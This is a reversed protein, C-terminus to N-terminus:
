ALIVIKNNVVEVIGGNVPFQKKESGSDVVVNGKSLASIMPAHNNMIQFSGEVGPLTVIQADGSFLTADPTLIDVQM